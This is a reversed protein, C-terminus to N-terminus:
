KKPLPGHLVADVDMSIIKFEKLFEDIVLGKPSAARKRAELIVERTLNGIEPNGGTAIKDKSKKGAVQTKEDGGMFDFDESGESQAAKEATTRVKEDAM